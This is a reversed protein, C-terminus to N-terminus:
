EIVARVQMLVKGLLNKGSYDDGIKWGWIPDTPSDEYIMLPEEDDSYSDLLADTMEPHQMAKALVAEFMVYWCLDGYDNGWGPRLVHNKVTSRKSGAQKAKYATPQNAIAEHTIATIAKMAQFRHEVTKYWRMQHTFPDEMWVGYNAFNSFIAFENKKEDPGYFIISGAGTVGDAKLREGKTM